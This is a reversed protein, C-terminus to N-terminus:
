RPADGRGGTRVADWAGSANSDCGLARYAADVLGQGRENMLIGPGMKNMVYGFSMRADPDAFGISGGAGVHGFACRGIIASDKAVALEQRNDMSKMFGLGFRTPLLLTADRHTAVAVDGMTALTEPSVYRQGNAEGGCAFPAYLKALSRGNGIGGGGGIEAAWCTPNGASFGGNNFFALSQISGKQGILAKTFDSLEAGRVPKFPTLKAVRHHESEPLGIWFDAGLPEALARRLYSGLSQGAARRVLEGVTWGFTMMHYGNRTGPEWFPEAAAVREVMYDWDCCALEKLEGRLCPVAASHDLMMKVTVADKGNAGFEPWYHTVPRHLELEGADILTHAALAVAGKTSSFVVSLTDEEWQTDADKLGGWLDVVPEGDITICVSAGIEEGAFNAAFAEAVGAFEARYQGQLTAGNPLTKQLTDM